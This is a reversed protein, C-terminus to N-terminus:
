SKYLGTMINQIRAYGNRPFHSPPHARFNSNKKPGTFQCRAMQPGFYELYLHFPFFYREIDLSVPQFFLKVAEIVNRNSRLLLFQVTPVSRSDNCRCLNTKGSECFSIYFKPFSIWLSARLYSQPYFEFSVDQLSVSAAQM